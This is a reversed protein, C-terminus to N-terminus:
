LIIGNSYYSWTKGKLFDGHVPLALEIVVKLHINMALRALSKLVVAEVHIEVRVVTELRIRISRPHIVDVQQAGERVLRM